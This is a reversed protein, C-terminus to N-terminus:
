DSQSDWLFPGKPIEDASLVECGSEKMRQCVRVALDDLEILLAFGTLKNFPLLRYSGPEDPDELLVWGPESGDWLYASEEVMEDSVPPSARRPGTSRRSDGCIGCLAEIQARLESVRGASIDPLCIEKGEMLGEVAQKAQQLTMDSNARLLRILSITQLGPKWGTIIVDCM